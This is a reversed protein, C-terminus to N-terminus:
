HTNCLKLQKSQKEIAIENLQGAYKLIRPEGKRNLGGWLKLQWPELTGHKLYYKATIAGTRGDTGTFGIGNKFRTSNILQEEETQRNLLAVLARGIVKAPDQNLKELLFKKTVLTQKKPKMFM